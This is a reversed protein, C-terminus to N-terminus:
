LTHQMNLKYCFELIYNKALKELKEAKVKFFFVIVRSASKGYQACIMKLMSPNKGYKGCIIVLM